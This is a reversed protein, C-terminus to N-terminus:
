LTQFLAIPSTLTPMLGDSMYMEAKSFTWKAKSARPGVGNKDIQMFQIEELERRSGGFPMEESYSAELVGKYLESCQEMHKKFFETAM